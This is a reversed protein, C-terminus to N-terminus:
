ARHTVYLPSITASTSSCADRPDQHFVAGALTLPHSVAKCIFPCPLPCSFWKTRTIILCLCVAATSPRCPSTLAAATVQLVRNRVRHLLSAARLGCCSTWCAAARSACQTRTRTRASSRSCSSPSSPAPSCCGRASLRSPAGPTLMLECCQLSTAAAPSRGEWNWGRGGCNHVRLVRHGECRQQLMLARLAQPVGIAKTDNGQM